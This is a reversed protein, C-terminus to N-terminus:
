GGEEGAGSCPTLTLDVGVAKLRQIGAFTEGDMDDPAQRAANLNFNLGELVAEYLRNYNHAPFKGLKRVARAM